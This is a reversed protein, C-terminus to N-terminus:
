TDRMNTRENDMGKVDTLFIVTNELIQMLQPSINFRKQQVKLSVNVNGDRSRKTSACWDSLMELLDVLNMGAIGEKFHEPHHRNNAYHHALVEKLQEKQAFYELSGYVIEDLGKVHDTFGVVEPHVLKSCDHDIARATLETTFLHMIKQVESIHTWTNHNASKNDQSLPTKNM